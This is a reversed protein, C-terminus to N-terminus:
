FTGYGRADQDISTKGNARLETVNGGNKLMQQIQSMMEPSLKDMLQAPSMKVARLRYRSVEAKMQDTAAAMEAASSALEDAQQSTESAARAIENMAISIQAVGRSQEDSSRDIEEVIDKIQAIQGAISAFTDSTEDAIRVGSSVRNAADEILDSTERAAKASRGALNRVEQAVVAFGRGHQGARAAEVAANLALLNTQFAIEDIVKIIKAIDQSSSKIGHMATVMDKVNEAGQDALAATSGVLEASKRSSEANARVQQDTQAISASVEEVSSSSVQSNSSLAQSAHTLKSVGVSVQDSQERIMAVASNISEFAQQFSILVDRYEGQFADINLEIDLEGQVLANSMRTIEAVMKRYSDRIGSLADSLFKRPGTYVEFEYGFNGEAFAMMAKVAKIKTDIHGEIMANVEKAASQLGEVAIKNVDIRREVAGEAHSKAMDSLEELFIKFESVYYGTEKEANVRDTQDDWEVIFLRNKGGDDSWPTLTFAMWRGGINLMGATADEMGKLMKRQHAPNKHFDDINMGLMSAAEFKPFDTQVAAEIGSFLDIASQNVYLIVHDSGAIMIPAALRDYASAATIDGFFDADTEPTKKTSTTMDATREPEAGGPANPSALPEPATDSMTNLDPSAPGNEPDAPSNEPGTPKQASM